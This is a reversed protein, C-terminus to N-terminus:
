SRIARWDVASRGRQSGREAKKKVASDNTQCLRITWQKDSTLMPRFARRRPQSPRHSPRLSRAEDMRFVAVAKTIVRIDLAQATAM